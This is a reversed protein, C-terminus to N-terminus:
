NSLLGALPFWEGDEFYEQQSLDYRFLVNSQEDYFFVETFPEDPRDLGKALVDKAAVFYTVDLTPKLLHRHSLLIKYGQVCGRLAPCADEFAALLGSKPSAQVFSLAKERRVREYVFQFLGPYTINGKPVPPLKKLAKIRKSLPLDMRARIKERQCEAEVSEEAIDRYRQLVGTMKAKDDPIQATEKLYKISSSFEEEIGKQALILDDQSLNPGQLHLAFGITQTKLQRTLLNVFTMEEETLRNEM